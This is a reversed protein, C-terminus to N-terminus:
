GDRRSFVSYGGPGVLAAIVLLVLGFLLQGELVQVIGIIAIIAAIVPLLMATSYGSVDPRLGSAFPSHLNGPPASTWRPSITAPVM